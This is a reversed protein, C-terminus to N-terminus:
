CPQITGEPPQLTSTLYLQTLLKEVTFNPASSNEGMNGESSLFHYSIFNIKLSQELQVFPSPHDEDGTNESLKESLFCKGHCHKEPGNKNICFQEIINAQDVKFALWISTHSMSAILVTFALFISLCNKM